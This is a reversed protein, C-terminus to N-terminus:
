RSRDTFPLMDYVARLAQGTRIYLRARHRCAPCRGWLFGSAPNWLFPPRLLKPVDVLDGGTQAGCRRCEVDLQSPEPALPSTSFLAEKGDAQRPRKRRGDGVRGLRDSTGGSAGDRRADGATM